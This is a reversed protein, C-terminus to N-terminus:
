YVYMYECVGCVSVCVCQDDSFGITGPERHKYILVEESITPENCSCLTGKHGAMQLKELKPTVCMCVCVCVCVCLM